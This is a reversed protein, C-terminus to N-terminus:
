SVSLGLLRLKYSYVPDCEQWRLIVSMRLSLPMSTSPAEINADHAAVNDCSAVQCQVSGVNVGSGDRCV